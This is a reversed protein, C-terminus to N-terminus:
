KKRLERLIRVNGLLRTMYTEIDVATKKCIPCYDLHHHEDSAKFEKKCDECYCLYIKMTEYQKM